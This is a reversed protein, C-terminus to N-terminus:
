SAQRPMDDVETFAWRHGDPDQVEFERDGWPRTVPAELVADPYQHDFPQLGAHKVREFLDDLATVSAHMIGASNDARTRGPHLMIEGDGLAFWHMGDYGRKYTFGVQEYWERSEETDRCFLVVHRFGKIM